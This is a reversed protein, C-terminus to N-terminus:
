RFVGGLMLSTAIVFLFLNAWMVLITFIERRPSM